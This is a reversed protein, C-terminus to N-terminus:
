CLGMEHPRSGNMMNKVASFIGSAFRTNRYVMLCML